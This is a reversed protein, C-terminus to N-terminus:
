ATRVYELTAGALATVASAGVESAFQIAATGNASPKIFGEVVAVNGTTLSSANAAAPQQLATYYGFTETSATLPYRSTYSIATMAPGNITWRSGTTTAASTYPIVARFRYVQGATVAFSLGTVDALTDAASNAVDATTALLVGVGLTATPTVTWGSSNREYFAHAGAALTVKYIEATVSSAGTPDFLKVTVDCPSADRNRISITEIQRGVFANSPATLIDTTTATSILTPVNGPRQERNLGLDLYAVNVDVTVAASTTLKLVCKGNIFM